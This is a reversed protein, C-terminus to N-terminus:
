DTPPPRQSEAIAIWRKIRERLRGREAATLSPPMKSVMAIAEDAKVFGHVLLAVDFDRDKDRNAVAKAM